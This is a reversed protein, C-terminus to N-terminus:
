PPFAPVSFSVPGISLLVVNKEEDVLQDLLQFFFEVSELRCSKVYAVFELLIAQICRSICQVKNAM